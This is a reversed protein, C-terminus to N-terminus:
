AKDLKSLAAELRAKTESMESLRGKEQEVVEAPAREVFKPNGLKKEVVALDKLVKKLERELREKEKTTDVLGALPVLVTIGEAVAKRSLERMMEDPYGLWGASTTYCPYGQELLQQEREERTPNASQLILLAEEPTLADSWGM